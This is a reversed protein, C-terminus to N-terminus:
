YSGKWLSSKVGILIIRDWVHGPEQGGFPVPSSWSDSERPALRSFM